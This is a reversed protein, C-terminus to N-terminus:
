LFSRDTFVAGKNLGGPQEDAVVLPHAQVPCRFARSMTPWFPLCIDKRRKEAGERVAVQRAFRGTSVRRSLVGTLALSSFQFRVEGPLSAVTVADGAQRPALADDVQLM